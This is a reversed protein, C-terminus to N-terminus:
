FDTCRGKHAWDGYLTPEPGKYRFGIEEALAEAAEEELEDDSAEDSDDDPDTHKEWVKYPVQRPSWEESSTSVQLTADKRQQAEELEQLRPFLVKPHQVVAEEMKLEAGETAAESSFRRMASCGLGGVTSTHLRLSVMSDASALGFVLSTRSQFLQAQADSRLWRCDSFIPRHRRLAPQRLITRM